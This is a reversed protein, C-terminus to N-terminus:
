PLRYLSVEARPGEHHQVALSGSYFCADTQFPLSDEIRARLLLEGWANQSTPTEGWSSRHLVALWDGSSPAPAGPQGLSTFGAGDAYFLFGCFGEATFWARASPPKLPLWRALQSAAAQDARADRVDVAFIGLALAINGLALGYILRQDPQAQCSRCALRGAVLTGVVVVALVRRAGPFPSLAFYAAFELLLWGVLFWDDRAVPLGRSVGAASKGKRALVGAVRCLLGVIVAGYVGFLVNELPLQPQGNQAGVFLAALHAPGFGLLLFGCAVSAAATCVAQRSWKLAVLTLLGLAPAVSGLISLLPLLLHAPRRLSHSRHGLNLAFHSEGYLHATVIEWGGFLTIALACAMISLRWRGTLLGRLLFSGPIVFATYKTQMALGAVLGALAAGLMSDSKEARLLLAVAALSLALAPVDLMLGFCPLVSPSLVSLWLLPTAWQRCFRDLLSKLGFVLLISFPLLWLKWLVPQDGFLRIALAWWYLLVPPALVQNAAVDGGFHFGYPDFPHEAIHRSFFWYVAEDGQVPKCTNLLVLLCALILPGLHARKSM